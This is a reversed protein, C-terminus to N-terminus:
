TICWLHTAPIPVAQVISGKEVSFGEEELDDEMISSPDDFDRIDMLAVYEVCEAGEYTKTTSHVLIAQAPFDNERKLILKMPSSFVTPIVPIRKIDEKKHLGLVREIRYASPDELPEVYELTRLPADAVQLFARSKFRSAHKTLEFGPLSVVFGKKMDNDGQVLRYRGGFRSDSEDRGGHDVLFSAPAWRCGPTKSRCSNGFVIESPLWELMSLFCEMRNEAPLAALIKTELDLMSALCLFEDEQLSSSLKAAKQLLHCM